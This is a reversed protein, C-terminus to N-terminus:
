AAALLPNIRYRGVSVEHQATGGVMEAIRDLLLESETKDGARIACALDGLLRCCNSDLHDKAGADIRVEARAEAAAEDAAEEIADSLSRCGTEDIEFEHKCEPCSVEVTVM